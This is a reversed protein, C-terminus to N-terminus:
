YRFSDILVRKNEVSRLYVRGIMFGGAAINAIADDRYTSFSCLFSRHNLLLEFGVRISGNWGVEDM